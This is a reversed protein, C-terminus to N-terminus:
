NAYPLGASQAITDFLPKLVGALDHRGPNFLVPPFTLEDWDITHPSFLADVLSAVDWSGRCRSCYRTPRNSVSPTMSCLLQTLWESM